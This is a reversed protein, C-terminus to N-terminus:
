NRDNNKNMNKITNSKKLNDDDDINHIMIHMMQINFM